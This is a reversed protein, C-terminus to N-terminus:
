QLKYPTIWKGDKIPLIDAKNFGTYTRVKGKIEELNKNITNRIEDNNNYLAWIVFVAYFDGYIVSSITVEGLEKNIEFMVEESIYCETWNSDTCIQPIKHLNVEKGIEELISDLWTEIKDSVRYKEFDLVTFEEVVGRYSLTITEIRKTVCYRKYLYLLFAGYYNILNYWIEDKVLCPFVIERLKQLLSANMEEYLLISLKKGDFTPKITTLYSDNVIVKFNRIEDLEEVMFKVNNMPYRRM